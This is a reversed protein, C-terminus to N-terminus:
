SQHSSARSVSLEVDAAVVFATPFSSFQQHPGSPTQDQDYLRKLEAVGPSIDFRTYTNYAM